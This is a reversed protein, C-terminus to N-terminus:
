GAVPGTRRYVSAAIGAFAIGWAIAAIAWPTSLASADGAATLSAAGYVAIAMAAAWAPLRWGPVGLGAVFGLGIISLAFAGMASWHGYHQAAELEATTEAAAALADEIEADTATDPLTELVRPAIQRAETGERIQGVAFVLLPVAAVATAALLLSHPQTEPHILRARAPHLIVLVIPFVIFAVVIPDIVRDVLLVSLIILYLPVVVQYMAAINRQPNRLQAVLGISTVVFLLGFCIEHVRHSIVGGELFWGLVAYPLPSLILHMILFVAIVAVFTVRRLRDGRDGAAGRDDTEARV